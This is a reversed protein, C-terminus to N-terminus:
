KQQGKFFRLFFSASRSALVSFIRQTAQLNSSSLLLNCLLDSLVAPPTASVDALANVSPSRVVTKRYGAKRKSVAGIYWLGSGCNEPKYLGPHAGWGGGSTISVYNFLTPVNVGIGGYKLKSIMEDVLGNGQPDKSVESPLSIACSLSGECEVNCVDAAKTLFTSLDGGSKVRVVALVPCFAESKLADNVFQSSEYIGCDLLVPNLSPKVASSLPKGVVETTKSDEYFSAMADLRKHAGPYYAPPTPLKSFAHKLSDLFADKQDWDEDLILVQPSLCNAGAGLKKTYALLKSQFQIEKAGWKGPVAIWPTVCGLECSVQVTSAKGSAALTKVIADHTAGAGTVHVHGISPDSVLKESAQIGEDYIMEVYGLSILPQLIHAYPGYLFPRLPHHKLLVVESHMFVRDLVDIMSLFNQNGAGLVLCVYEKGEKTKTEELGFEDQVGDDDRNCWVEGSVKPAISSKFPFVDFGHKQDCAKYAESEGKGELNQKLAQLYNKVVLGFAFQQQAGYNRSNACDPELGELVLQDEIWNKKWELSELSEIVSTLLQLKTSAPAKRWESSKSSLQALDVAAAMASTRRRRTTTTMTTTTKPFSRVRSTPRATVLTRAALM